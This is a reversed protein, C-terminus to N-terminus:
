ASAKATRRLGLLGRLQDFSEQTMWGFFRTRPSSVLRPQHKALIAREAVIARKVAADCYAHWDSESLTTKRIGDYLICTLPTPKDDGDKM